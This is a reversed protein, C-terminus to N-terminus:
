RPHVQPLRLTFFSLLIHGLLPRGRSFLIGERDAETGRHLHEVGVVHVRSPSPLELTGPVGNFSLLRQIRPSQHFFLTTTFLRRLLTAGGFLFM